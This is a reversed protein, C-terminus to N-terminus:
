FRGGWALGMGEPTASIGVTAVEYTDTTLALAGGVLGLGLMAGGGIMILTGLGDDNDSLGGLILGTGGAAVNIGACGLAINRLAPHVPGDNVALMLTTGLGGLNSLAVIGAVPLAILGGAESAHATGVPILLGALFLTRM